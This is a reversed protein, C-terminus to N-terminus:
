MGHKLLAGQLKVRSMMVMTGMGVRMPVMVTLKMMVFAVVVSGLVAMAPMVMMRVLHAVFLCDVPVPRYSTWPSSRSSWGDKSTELWWGSGRLRM